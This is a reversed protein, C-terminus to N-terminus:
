IRTSIDVLASKIDDMSVEFGPMFEVQERYDIDDFYSVQSRFLRENFEGGFLIRAQKSVQDLSYTKFAFYLDVYDKWKSRHGLAYAKMASLTLIDPMTITQDLSETAPIKFPFNYFTTKITNIIISYEAEDEYLKTFNPVHKNMKRNIASKPVKGYSFLDFDISRRHGLQLAFATGGVLYFKDSFSKILPLM